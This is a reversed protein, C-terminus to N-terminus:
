CCDWSGAVSSTSPETESEGAVRTLKVFVQELSSQALVWDQVGLRSAALRLIKLVHAMPVERRREDLSDASSVGKQANDLAVCLAQVLRARRPFRITASAGIASELVALGTVNAHMFALLREAPSMPAEQFCVGLEELEAASEASSAAATVSAATGDVAEGGENPAMVQVAASSVGELGAAWADVQARDLSATVTYEDAFRRSLHLPSGICRLSGNVLIGVRTCLTEAELMSHTSLIIAVRRQARERLLVDWLYQRTAIDVRATPEDLLLVAPSGVLAIALSLKRKQGGSLTQAAQDFADGDLGVKEASRRAETAIASSPIGRMRAFISLHARVSLENWLVDGQPVVGMIRQAAVAQTNISYGGVFAGGRTAAQAGGLISLATTKGSGNPGLLGFCEGYQVAISLDLLAVQPRGRVTGPYVKSLRKIVIAAPPVSVGDTTMAPQEGMALDGEPVAGARGESDRVTAAIHSAEGGRSVIAQSGSGDFDGQLVRKREASVDEDMDGVVSSVFAADNDAGSHPMSSYSASGGPVNGFELATPSTTGSHMAQLQIEGRRVSRQTRVNRLLQNYRSCCCSGSSRPGSHFGRSAVSPDSRVLATADDEVDATVATHGALKYQVDAPHATLETIRVGFLRWTCVDLCFLPHRAAEGRSYPLVAHLYPGLILLLTGVLFLFGLCTALDAPEGAVDDIHDGGYLFMLQSARIFAIPPVWLLSNSWHRTAIVIVPAAITAAMIGVIGVILAVRPRGIVASGFFTMGTYAHMGCFTVWFYDGLGVNQIVKNGLALGLGYFALMFSSGILMCYAYWGFYYSLLHLASQKLLTHQGSARESVMAQGLSPFALNTCLMYWTLM